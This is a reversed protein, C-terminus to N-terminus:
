GTGWKPPIPLRRGGSWGAVGARCSRLPHPAIARETTQPGLLVHMGDNEQALTGSLQYCLVFLVVQGRNSDESVKRPRKANLLPVEAGASKSSFQAARSVINSLSNLGGGDYYCCAALAPRPPGRGPASIYAAVAQLAGPPFPGRALGGAPPGRKHGRQVKGAGREWTLHHGRGQGRSPAPSLEFGAVPAVPASSRTCFRHWKFSLYYCCLATRRGELTRRPAKRHGGPLSLSV